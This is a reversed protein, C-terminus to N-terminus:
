AHTAIVRDLLRDLTRVGAAVDDDATDEERAHSIGRKSPVFLMVTPVLPAM